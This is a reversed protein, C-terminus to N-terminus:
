LLLMEALWGHECVHQHLLPLREARVLLKGPLATSLCHSLALTHWALQELPSRLLLPLLQCHGVPLLASLLLLVQSV